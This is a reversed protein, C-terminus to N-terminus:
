HGEEDQTKDKVVVILLSGDQTEQSVEYGEGAVLELAEAAPRVVEVPETPQAALPAPRMSGPNGGNPDAHSTLGGGDKPKGPGVVLMALGAAFLLAAALLMTAGWNRSVPAAPPTVVVGGGTALQDELAQDVRAWADAGPLEPQFAEAIPDLEREAEALLERGRETELFAMFAQEEAPSLDGEREGTLIREMDLPSLEPSMDNEGAM